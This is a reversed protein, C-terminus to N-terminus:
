TVPNYELLGEGGQRCEKPLERRHEDGNSSDLCTTEIMQGTQIHLAAPHAAYTYYYVDPKFLISSM